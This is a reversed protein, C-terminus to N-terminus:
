KTEGEIEDAAVLFHVGARIWVEYNHPDRPGGDWEAHVHGIDGKRAFVLATGGHENNPNDIVDKLFRIKTGPKLKSM